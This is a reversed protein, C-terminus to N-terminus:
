PKSYLSCWYLNKCSTSNFCCIVYLKAFKVFQLMDVHTQLKAITNAFPKQPIQQHNWFEAM